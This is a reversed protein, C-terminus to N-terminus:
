IPKLFIGLTFGRGVIAEVSDPYNLIHINITGFTIYIRSRRVDIRVTSYEVYFCMGSESQRHMCHLGMSFLAFFDRKM